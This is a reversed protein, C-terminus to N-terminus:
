GIITASGPQSLTYYVTSVVNDVVVLDWRDDHEEGFAQITGNVVHDFTFHQLREDEDIHKAVYDRGTPALLNRIIYVMWEPSDYFKEGGDWELKSPDYPQVQDGTFGPKWQCWLGPQDPHPNNYDQIDPDRDQGYMGTGKVFLPGKTRKMRRTEALDVLFSVEHQNLPPEITLSGAFDTHYGM